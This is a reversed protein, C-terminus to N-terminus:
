TFIALLKQWHHMAKTHNERHLHWAVLAYLKPAGTLDNTLPNVGLNAPREMDYQAIKWMTQDTM